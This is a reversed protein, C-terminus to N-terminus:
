ILAQALGYESIAFGVSLADISTAIGQVVLVAPTLRGATVEEGDRGSRISKISEFLMKGGIYLLLVLAIWPIFKEFVKFYQLLTHVCTWGIIPMLAQFFGFTGAMVCMRGKRMNREALGNALSVSFADMALGVGLLISNIFFVPNIVM